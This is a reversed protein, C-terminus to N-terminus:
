NMNLAGATQKTIGDLADKIRKEWDQPFPNIQTLANDELERFTLHSLTKLNKVQVLAGANQMIKKIKEEHEGWSSLAIVPKHAALCELGLDGSPKTCM